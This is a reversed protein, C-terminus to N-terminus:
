KDTSKRNNKLEELDRKIQEIDQRMPNDPTYFHQTWSQFFGHLGKRKEILGAISFLVVLAVIFWEVGLNIQYEELLPKIVIRWLIMSTALMSYMAFYNGLQGIVQKFHGIWLWIKM